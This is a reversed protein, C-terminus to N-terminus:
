WPLAALAAIFAWPGGASAPGFAETALLAAAPAMLINGLGEVMRGVLLVPLSPALGSLLSGAAFLVWARASSATAGM